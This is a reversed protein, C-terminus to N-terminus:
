YISILLKLQYLHALSGYLAYSMYQMDNEDIFFQEIKWM